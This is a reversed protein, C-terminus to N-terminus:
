IEKIFHIDRSMARYLRFRYRTFTRGTYLYRVNGDKDLMLLYLTYCNLDKEFSALVFNEVFNPVYDQCTCNSLADSVLSKFGSVLM